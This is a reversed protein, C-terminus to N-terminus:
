AEADGSEWVRKLGQIFGADVSAPFLDPEWCALFRRAEDTLVLTRKGTEPMANGSPKEGPSPLAAM